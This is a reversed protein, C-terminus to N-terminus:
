IVFKDLLVKIMIILIILAVSWISFAKITRKKAIKKEWWNTPRIGALYFTMIGAINLCIINTLFILFSHLAPISHGGGLLLGGRMLPPLLAAAVMVGVLTGGEGSLISIVGAFGCVLALIVDQYEISLNLQLNSFDSVLLGWLFSIVVAIVTGLIGSVLAKKTISLDGLTTGFALALNPGLFPAIVMAGIVIAVNGKLLGIGAVLSSLFVMLIFNANLEVPTALDNYLEEKNIVALKWIKLTQNEKNNETDKIRPLTGEVPYIIVRHQLMKNEIKEIFDKTSDDKLLLNIESDDGNKDIWKQIVSEDSAIDDYSSIENEPVLIEILRM